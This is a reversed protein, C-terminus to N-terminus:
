YNDVRENKELARINFHLNWMKFLIISPFVYLIYVIYIYKKGYLASLM